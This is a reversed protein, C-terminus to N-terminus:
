QMWCGRVPLWGSWSVLGRCLRRDGGRSYAQIIATVVAVRVVKPIYYLVYIGQTIWRVLSPYAPLLRCYFLDTKLYSERMYLINACM